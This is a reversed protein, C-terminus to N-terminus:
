KIKLKNRIKTHSTLSVNDFYGTHAALNSILSDSHKLGGYKFAVEHILYTLISKGTQAESGSLFIGITM